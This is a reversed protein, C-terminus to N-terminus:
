GGIVSRVAGALGAAARSRDEPTSTSRILAFVQEHGTVDPQLGAYSLLTNSAHYRVLYDPDQVCSALADVIRETPVFAALAIAADLRDNWYGAGLLVRLVERSWDEDGTLQHLAEAVRLHFGVPQDGLHQVLRDVFRSRSEPSLPLRAAAQAALPDRQELGDLLAGEVFLPDTNWLEDCTTYDPGDHWILYPEGFAGLRFQSWNASTSAMRWPYRQTRRTLSVIARLHLETQPM